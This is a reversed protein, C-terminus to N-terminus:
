TNHSSIVSQLGKCIAKDLETMHFNSSWTERRKGLAVGLTTNTPWPWCRTRLITGKQFLHDLGEFSLCWHTHNEGWVTSSPLISSFRSSLPFFVFVTICAIFLILCVFTISSRNMLQACSRRESHTFLMAALGNARWSYNCLFRKLDPTLHM